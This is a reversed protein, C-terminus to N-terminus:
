GTAETTKKMSDKAIKMCKSCLERKFFTKSINAIDKAEMLKGDANTASTIESSCDACSLSSSKKEVTKESKNGILVSKKTTAEEKQEPTDNSVQDEAAKAKGGIVVSKKVPTPETPETAKTEQERPQPNSPTVGKSGIVIGKKEENSSSEEPIMVEDDGIDVAVGLKKAANSMAKSLCGKFDNGLDSTIKKGGFGTKRFREGSDPDIYEIAAAVVVHKDNKSDTIVCSPLDNGVSVELSWALGFAENLREALDEAAVYVYEDYAKKDANWSGKRKQIKETPFDRRLISIVEESTKGKKNSAM